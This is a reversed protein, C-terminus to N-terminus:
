VIWKWDKLSKVPILRMLIPTKKVYAQFEPDEGYNKTQRKDLRKAGSLMVYILCLYGFIAIVWQWWYTYVNIGSVFVGTWFLIEGLYNPCRVYRYLGTDVFRRPNVKKAQSKQHDALTEITLATAMIVAGVIPFILDLVSNTSSYVSGQIARYAVPSTEAVYLVVVSLWITIKVFIPMKKDTAANANSVAKKYSASKIDRYLLFGSLRAGYLLLLVLLVYECIGISPIFGVLSMVATAIAIGAVAFGYGVNLFYVFKYFGVASLLAAVGALIGTVIWILAVPDMM